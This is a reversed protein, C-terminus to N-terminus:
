IFLGSFIALFIMVALIKGGGESRASPFIGSYCRAEKAMEFKEVREFSRLFMMHGILATTKVWRRLGLFGLRAEASIKLSEAEELLVQIARYSLLMIERLFGVRVLNVFEPLTTTLVLYCFASFASFCRLLTSQAVEVSKDTIKLFYLSAIEKGEITFLIVTTSFLIFVAPALLLRLYYRSAHLSLLSFLTLAILQSHTDLLILPLSLLVLWVRAKPGMVKKSNMQISELSETM